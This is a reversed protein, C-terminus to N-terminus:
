ASTGCNNYRMSSASHCNLCYNVFLKAGNQLSAVDNVRYPAKGPSAAEAAFTATCTLMMLAVAGILKKIM